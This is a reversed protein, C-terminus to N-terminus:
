NAEQKLLGAVVFFLYTIVGFLLFLPVSKITLGWVFTLILYSMLQTYVTLIFAAILATLLKAMAGIKARKEAGDLM